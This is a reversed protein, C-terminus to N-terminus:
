LKKVEEANIPMPGLAAMSLLSLLQFRSMSRRRPHVDGKTVLVEARVPEPTVNNREAARQAASERELRQEAERVQREARQQITLRREEDEHKRRALKERYKARKMAGHSSM